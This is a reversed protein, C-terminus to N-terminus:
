ATRPRGLRERLAEMAAEKEDTKIRELTEQYAVATDVVITKPFRAFWVVISVIQGVIISPLVSLFPIVPDAGSTPDFKLSSDFQALYAVAAEGLANFHGVGLTDFLARTDISMVLMIIALYIGTLMLGMFFGCVFFAKLFGTPRLLFTPRDPTGALFLSFLLGPTALMATLWLTDMSRVFGSAYAFAFVPVFALGIWGSLRLLFLYVRAMPRIKAPSESM